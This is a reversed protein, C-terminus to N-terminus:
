SSCSTASTTTTPSTAGRVCSATYSEGFALKGRTALRRFLRSDHIRLHVAPGSGFQRRSGDPLTVDLAGEELHELERELVAVAIRDVLPVRALPAARVTRAPATM